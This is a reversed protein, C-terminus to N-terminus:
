KNQLMKAYEGNQALLEAHKGQEVLSGDKIVLILDANKVWSLRHAVIFTIRGKMLANLSKLITNETRSDINSTAEDLILIKPNALVARAITILQKQGGSLNDFEENLVMNYENPLTRIFHHAGAIKAANQVDTDTAKLNGYRINELITDNYLWTDQFAISMKNRLDDRRYDGVNIGGLKIEGSDVDYFRMLLKILTSKGAGTDGVIAVKEGEKIKASFNNIVPTDEFYNFTVNNFEIDTPSNKEPLVANFKDPSEEEEALFDFIRETAATIQHYMNSINTVQTIPQNFLKMYMMLAGIGGITVTGAFALFSGVIAVAVYGVNGVLNTIPWMIGSMFSGKWASNYLSDNIKDFKEKMKDESNFSRVINIGSFVEEIHSNVEGLDKQQRRYEKQSPNFITAIGVFSIPITILAIIALEWNITFIIITIAIISTIATITQVVSTSLAMSLTDIDNSIRSQIEGHPTKDFYSLPLSHLKDDAEKRMRYTVKATIRSMLHGQVYSLIGSALYLGLIIIVISYIKNFDVGGGTGLVEGMIDNYVQDIAGGLIKPGIAALLAAIIAILFSVLMSIKHKGIYKILKLIAKTGNKPKENPM